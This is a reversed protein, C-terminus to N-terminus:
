RVIVRPSQDTFDAHVSRKAGPSLTVQAGTRLGLTANEFSVFYSGPPLQLGSVPTTGYSKGGVSVASPPEASLTLAARAGPEVAGSV